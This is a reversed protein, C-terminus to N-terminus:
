QFCRSYPQTSSWMGRGCAADNCLYLPSHTHTPPPVCMLVLWALSAPLMSRMYSYDSMWRFQRMGICVQSTLLANLKEPLLSGSLRFSDTLSVHVAVDINNHSDGQDGEESRIEIYRLQKPEMMQKLGCM